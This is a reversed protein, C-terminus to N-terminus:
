NAPHFHLVSWSVFRRNFDTRKRYTEESVNWLVSLVARAKWVKFGDRTTDLQAWMGRLKLQKFTHEKVLWYQDKWWHLFADKRVVMDVQADKQFKQLTSYEVPAVSDPHCVETLHIDMTTNSALILAAKELMEGIRGACKVRDRSTMIAHLVPPSEPPDPVPATAFINM